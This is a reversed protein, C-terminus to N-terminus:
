LTVQSVTLIVSPIAPCFATNAAALLYVNTSDTAWMLEFNDGASMSEIFNWAAVEVDRNSSISIKTTSNPVDENNKRYWIYLNGTTSVSSKIQLSFQYNYLGANQAIIQTNNAVVIGSNIQTSNLKVSYPTNINNATQNSTDYFSGYYLRPYFTPKVLLIGNMSDVKLVVGIYIVVNPATPRIKTLKGPISPHAFLLDGVSWTESVDSGTTNLNRVEGLRTARGIGDHLIDNTLIGLAYLPNCTTNAVLPVCTPTEKDGNVGSLTVLTGNHLTNGTINHVRVYNELGTQLVTGDEQYINLCDKNSNWELTGAIQPTNAGTNSFLLSSIPGQDGSLQGFFFKKDSPNYRLIQDTNGISLRNVDDLWRFNVEGGGPGAASIKYIWSELSKVKNQIEKISTSTNPEPVSFLNTVETLHKNNEEKAIIKISKEILQNKQEIIPEEFIETEIILEPTPENEKFTFFDSHKNSKKVEELISSISSKFNSKTTQITDVHNDFVIEESLQNLFNSSDLNLKLENRKNKLNLRFNDSSSM